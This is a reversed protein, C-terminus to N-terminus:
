IVGFARAGFMVLGFVSILVILNGAWGYESPLNSVGQSLPGILNVGVIVALIAVIFGSVFTRLEPSEAM